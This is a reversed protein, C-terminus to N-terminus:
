SRGDDCSKVAPLDAGLCALLCSPAVKLGRLYSLEGLPRESTADESPFFFGKPCTSGRRRNRTSQFSTFPWTPERSSPSITIHDCADGNHPDLLLFLLTFFSPLPPPFPRFIHTGEQTGAQRLPRPLPWRSHGRCVIQLKSWIKVAQQHM